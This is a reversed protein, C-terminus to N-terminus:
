KIGEHKNLIFTKSKLIKFDIQFYTIQLNDIKLIINVIFDILSISIKKKEVFISIFIFVKRYFDFLKLYNNFFSM